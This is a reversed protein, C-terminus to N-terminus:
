GADFYFRRGRAWQCQPHGDVALGSKRYEAATRSGYVLPLHFPALHGIERIYIAIDAHFGCAKFSVGYGQPM